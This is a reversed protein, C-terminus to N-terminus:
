RTRNRPDDAERRKFERMERKPPLGLNGATEEEREKEEEELQLKKRAREADATLAGVKTNALHGLMAKGVRKPKRWGEGMVVAFYGHKERTKTGVVQNRDLQLV